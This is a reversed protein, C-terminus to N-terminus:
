RMGVRLKTPRGRDVPDRWIRRYRPELWALHEAMLESARAGDGDRVARGIARHQRTAGDDAEFGGYAM